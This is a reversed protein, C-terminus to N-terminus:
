PRPICEASVLVEAGRSQRAEMTRNAQPSAPGPSSSALAAAVRDGLGVGVAGTREGAGVMEGEGTADGEGVGVGAGPGQQAQTYPSSGRWLRSHSAQFTSFSFSPVQLSIM